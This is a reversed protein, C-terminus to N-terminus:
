RVMKEGGTKSDHSTTRPSPDHRLTPICPPPRRSDQVVRTSILSNQASCPSFHQLWWVAGKNLSRNTFVGVLLPLIHKLVSSHTQSEAQSFTNKPHTHSIPQERNYLMGLHDQSHLTLEPSLPQARRTKPFFSLVFWLTLICFLGLTHTKHLFLLETFQIIM